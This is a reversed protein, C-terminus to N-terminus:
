TISYSIYGVIIVIRCFLLSASIAFSKPCPWDSVSVTRGFRIPHILFFIETKLSGNVRLFIIENENLFKCVKLESVNLNM